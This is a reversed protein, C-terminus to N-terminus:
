GEGGGGRWLERLALGAARPLLEALARRREQPALDRLLPHLEGKIEAELGALLEPDAAAQDLLRLLGGLVDERERLARPDAPPALGEARLVLAEARLARALAGAAEGGGEGALRRWLPSPGSLTLRLCHGADERWHGAARRVLEVLEGPQSAASVDAPALDHFLLRAAPAFRARAAAGELAVVWAGREGEERWSAGQHTGAMVVRNEALSQPLHWHGLAWYVFPASVLRELRTPAYPLHDDSRRSGPLDCHLVAVGALGPPPPPLRGALDREVHPSDHGAGAIWLGAAPLAVGSAEPGFVHV